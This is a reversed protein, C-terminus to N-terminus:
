KLGEYVLEFGEIRVWTMVYESSQPKTSEVEFWNNDIKVFPLWEFDTPHAVVAGHGANNLEKITTM